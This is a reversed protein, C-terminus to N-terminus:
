YFTIFHGLVNGIVRLSEKTWLILPLDSLLVWLHKKCMKLRCPDFGSWRRWLMLSEKDILWLDNLVRIAYAEELFIFVYWGNSLRSVTPAYDLLPKWM